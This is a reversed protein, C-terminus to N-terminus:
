LGRNLCIGCITPFYASIGPLLGQVCSSCHTFLCPAVRNTLSGQLFWKVFPFRPFFFFGALIVASTSALKTQGRGASVSFMESHPLPPWRPETQDDAKEGLAEDRRGCSPHGPAVIAFQGLSCYQSETVLVQTEQMEQLWLLWRLQVSKHLSNRLRLWKRM